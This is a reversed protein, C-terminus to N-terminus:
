QERPFARVKIIGHKTFQMVFTQRTGRRVIVKARALAKKRTSHRSCESGGSSWVAFM